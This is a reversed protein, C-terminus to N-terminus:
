HRGRSRATSSTLKLVNFYFFVSYKKNLMFLKFRRAGWVAMACLVCDFHGGGKVNVGVEEIGKELWRVLLGDCIGCCLSGCSHKVVPLRSRRLPGCIDTAAVVNGVHEVSLETAPNGCILLQSEASVDTLEEIAHVIALIILGRELGPIVLGTRRACWIQRQLLTQQSSDLFFLISISKKQSVLYFQNVGVQIEYLTVVVM